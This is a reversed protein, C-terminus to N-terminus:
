HPVATTAAPDDTHERGDLATAAGRPSDPVRWGGDTSARTVSDGSKQLLLYYPNPAAGSWDGSQHQREPSIHPGSVDVSSRDNTGGGLDEKEQTMRMLTDTTTM